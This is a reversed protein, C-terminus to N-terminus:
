GGIDDPIAGIQRMFELTDLHSWGDVIKGDDNFRAFEATEIDLRGGSAPIGMFAGEHTGTMRGRSAMLDGEVLMDFTEVRLDPFAEVYMKEAEVLADPGQGLGLEEPVAHLVADDALTERFGDWDRRNLTEEFRRATERNGQTGM